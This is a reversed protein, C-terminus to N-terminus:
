AETLFKHSPNDNCDGFSGANNTVTHDGVEEWLWVVSQGDRVILDPYFGTNNVKVAAKKKTTILGV